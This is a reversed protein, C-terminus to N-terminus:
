KKCVMLLALASCLSFTVLVGIMGSLSTSFQENAVGPFTYDPLLAHFVCNNASAELVAEVPVDIMVKELGDPSRSAFSACLVVMVIAALLFFAWLKM